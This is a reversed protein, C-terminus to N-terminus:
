CQYQEMKQLVFQMNARVKARNLEREYGNLAIKASLFDDQHKQFEVESIYHEKLLEKFSAAKKEFMAIKDKQVEIQRELLAVQQASFGKEAIAEQETSILCLLQGKTVEEGQQVFKKVITGPTKAFITILGKDPVLLGDVTQRKTYEGFYLYLGIAVAVFFMSFSWVSLSVPTVILTKGFYSGKKAQIAEQRFLPTESSGKDQKEQNEQNKQTDENEM